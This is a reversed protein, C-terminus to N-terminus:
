LEDLRITPVGDLEFDSEAPCFIWNDPHYAYAIYNLNHFIEKILKTNAKLVEVFCIPRHTDLTQMAGVLAYYEMGEIDLKIFDVAENYSDITVTKIYELNPKVMNQNDSHEAPMLEVGGFNNSSNYDPLQIPVINNLVDSVAVYECNINDLGNIAVNGCLMYYVQRQAEFARVSIRDGFQKALAVTHTGINAGVDYLVMKPKTELILECFSAILEIDEKGWAGFQIISQAIYQDNTNVIMPGYVSDAITNPITM